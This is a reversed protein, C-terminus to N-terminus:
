KLVSSIVVTSSVNELQTIEAGIRSDFHIKYVGHTSAWKSWKNIYKESQTPKLNAGITSARGRKTAREKQIKGKGGGGL